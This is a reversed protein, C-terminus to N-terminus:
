DVDAILSDKKWPKQTVTSEVRLTCPENACVPCEPETCPDLHILVDVQETFHESLIHELNKVERHGDELPLDRPLILHFDIQIRSGSRKTRLRHVDIWVDKRHSRLVSCIEDLLVPDSEDMLGGFGRRVLGFGSVVIQVGVLCAVAGDLRHWGTLEVLVLGIVVGATTYVDTLIHKGDAELVVSKTQKGRRVLALGLVLNIVSAAVLILLGWTLSPLAHPRLIQRAGEIFIGGAAILILAGEFGASFYEIKGHGYPHSEDPPRASVVLSVLAFGSAVINIISELADSLIASSGTIRYAAFKFATVAIGVLLAALMARQGSRFRQEYQNGKSESAQLTSPSTHTDMEM